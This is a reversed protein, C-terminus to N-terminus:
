LGQRKIDIVPIQLANSLEGCLRESDMVYGAPSWPNACIGLLRPKLLVRLRGGKQQFAHVSMPTAFVKTFDKIIIQTDTIEPQTRLFDLLKDSIAGSVFLRHGHAFLQDRKKELLFASSINLDVLEGEDSLAFIGSEIDLMRNQNSTEYKDLDIMECVFKTKRVLEALNPSLAAGTTLVLGSTVTPSGLSKRSLAGDVFVHQVGFQQIQAIVEKLHGTSVPGSLMVKGPTIARATILRGLATRQQSVALIESTLKRAHYLKESTVFVTGSTLMIEPKSTGTVQDCSEGDLGISTIGVTRGERACASLVSKLCETKGTNKEMGVFSVTDQAFINEKLTTANKM